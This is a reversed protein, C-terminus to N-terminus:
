KIEILDKESGQVDIRDVSTEFKPDILKPM